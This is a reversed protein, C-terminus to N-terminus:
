YNGFAGIVKEKFNSVLFGLEGLQAKKQNLVLCKLLYAKVVSLMHYLKLEDRANM